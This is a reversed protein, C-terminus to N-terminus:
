IRSYFVHETTLKKESLRRQLKGKTLMSIYYYILLKIRLSITITKRHPCSLKKRYLSVQINSKVNVM